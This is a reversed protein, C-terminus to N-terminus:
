WRRFWPAEPQGPRRSDQRTFRPHLRFEGGRGEGDPIGVGPVSRALLVQAVAPASAPLVVGVTLFVLVGAADPVLVSVYLAVTSGCVVLVLTLVWYVACLLIM